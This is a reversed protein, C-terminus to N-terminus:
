RAALSRADRARRPPLAVPICSYCLPAAPPGWGGRPGAALGPPYGAGPEWHQPHPPPYPGIPRVPAPGNRSPTLHRPLPHFPPYKPTM